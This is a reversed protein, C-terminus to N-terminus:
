LNFNNEILIVIRNHKKKKHKKGHDSEQDPGIIGDLSGMWHDWGIIRDTIRDLNQRCRKIKFTKM